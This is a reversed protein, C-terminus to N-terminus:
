RGANMREEALQDAVVFPPKGSQRARQFIEKMTDYIGDAKALARKEDYGEHEIFINIIGGSNVAYDPAYLIGKNQLSHGDEPTRLQNNACGVVARCHLRDITKPNLIGGRAGPSFFDCPVDYIEELAVVTAHFDRKARDLAARDIDTVWLQAGAEKLHQALSYGVHGVGQLAIKLGNLKRSGTLFEQTAEMARFVGRATVPSPDGSTGAEGEIGLVYKTHKKTEALDPTSINMDKAAIYTGGFSEVFHGFAHFLEPTKRHPDGIIVSKGGGFGIGALASKYSMGKSLRLVDDLAEDRNAYPLMRIGGCAPGLQTNHVAILAKLGSQTEEAYVVNEYGPVSIKERNWKM